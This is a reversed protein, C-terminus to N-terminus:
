LMANYCVFDDDDDKTFSRQREEEDAEALHNSQDASSTGAASQDLTAARQSPSIGPVASTVSDAAAEETPWYEEFRTHQNLSAAKPSPQAPLPDEEMMDEDPAVTEDNGSSLRPKKLVSGEPVDDELSRKVPSALLPLSLVEDNSKVLTTDPGKSSDSSNNRVHSDQSIFQEEVAVLPAQVPEEEEEEDSDMGYPVQTSQFYDGASSPVQPSASYAFQTSAPPAKTASPSAMGPSSSSSSSTISQAHAAQPPPAMQVHHHHGDLMEHLASMGGMLDAKSNVVKLLAAQLQEIQEYHSSLATVQDHARQLVKGRLGEYAKIRHQAVSLQQETETVIDQLAQNAQTLKACKDALVDMQKHCDSVTGEARLRHAKEVALVKNGDDIVKKRADLQNSKDKAEELANTLRTRVNRLDEAQEKVEDELVVTRAMAASMNAEAALAREKWDALETATAALAKEDARGKKQSKELEVVLAEMQESQAALKKELADAEAQLSAIQATFLETSGDVSAVSEALPAPAPTELVSFRYAIRVKDKYKLTIEDGDHIDKPTTGVLEGNLYTGNRSFDSLLYRRSSGNHEISIGFHTSSIFLCPIVFQSEHTFTQEASPVPQAFRGIFNANDCLPVFSPVAMNDELGGCRILKAWVTSM